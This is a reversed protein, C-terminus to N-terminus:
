DRKADNTEAVTPSLTTARGFTNDQERRKATREFYKFAQYFITWGIVAVFVFYNVSGYAKIWRPYSLLIFPTMCWGIYFLDYLKQVCYKLAPYVFPPSFIDAYVDIKSKAWVSAFQKEVTVTMYENLFAMYYGSHFGHWVALFGLAAAYSITRNNLFKLRKYVYQGVWQNTNVNFSHVYHQMSYGTELIFLNVNSCGSWDNEGNEKKGKYSIGLIMLAGETLLWCAVYKCLSLKAWVGLYVLRWFFPVKAYEDSIFYSDPFYSAGVQRVILYALGVSMRKLGAENGGEFQMFEGEIFRQYRRYAFQPGILFACPFYAFAFLELVSPMSAIANEQQEKSLQERKKLGDTIDFSFGILRLVLVCHPMTWLIDYENSETFYYGVLLYSMHFVFNIIILERPSSRLFRALVYTTAIAILSHSTDRGFNFLCLLLGWVLFYLHHLLKNPQHILVKRYVYAIGYGTFISLLLRLAAETAGFTHALKGILGLAPADGAELTSM